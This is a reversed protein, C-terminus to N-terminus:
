QKKEENLNLWPADARFLCEITEPKAEYVTVKGANIGAYFALASVLVATVLIIPISRDSM